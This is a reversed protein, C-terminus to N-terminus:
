TSRNESGTLRINTMPLLLASPQSIGILGAGQRPMQTRILLQLNSVTM